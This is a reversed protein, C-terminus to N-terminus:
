RECDFADLDIRPQLVCHASLLVAKLRLDDELWGSRRCCSHNSRPRLIERADSPPACFASRKEGQLSRVFRPLDRTIPTSPSCSVFLLVLSSGAGLFRVATPYDYNFRVGRCKRLSYFSSPSLFLFLFTRLSITRTQEILPGITRTRQQWVWWHAPRPWSLRARYPNSM